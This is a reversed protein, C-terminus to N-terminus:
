VTTTQPAQVKNTLDPASVGGGGMKPQMRPDVLDAPTKQTVDFFDNPNLGGDEMYSMLIKRKFPDTTMTPDATIAQLIAFKTAARVRTDVSEGTIDIDIDYKLNKYFGKPITLIHEKGQKISAEIAIGITDMDSSTPFKGGDLSKIALRIVEKAVLDNKVMAIYQDLNQGVLRLTHEATSDKEFQPMIVEYIMEKIDLAVNEQIGEFYSLTQSISIQASGLPTGAPLREGQVTDYSFTLEARNQMWKQTEQAFFALNRDAMDIQTIESDSTIIEGNKADTYLNRNVASDRTQFYRLGAWYTTKAQVNAIENLRIQPEYLTEVVGIGQWRGAVKEMHFEWYPDDEADWDEVSLEIGPYAAVFNGFQDYQDIGVDAVFSRSYPYTRKGSADEKMVEGYREYIRIHSMGKMRHYKAIVDDVDSEKWQMKKAIKRFEGPTYMHIETKYNMSDLDDASQDVIFNRLDVFYPVGEVIKLVVTGFIPLEKFIRNLVKGFQIDRMWYELDREAFWTKLPDGGGTTLMRINKTDFDISKSCVKCPNKNINNFYKRDGDDDTDGTQYKSNYYFHIKLINDYQNFFLGPVIQIQKARYDLVEQNITKLVNLM